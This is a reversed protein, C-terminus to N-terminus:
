NGSGTGSLRWRGDFDFEQGDLLSIVAKGDPRLTVETRDISLWSGVIETRKADHVAPVEDYM